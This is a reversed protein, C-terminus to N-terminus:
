ENVLHGYKGTYQCSYVSYVVFVVSLLKKGLIAFLSSDVLCM